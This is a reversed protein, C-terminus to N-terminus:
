FDYCINEFSSTYPPIRLVREIEWAGIEKYLVNEDSAQCLCKIVEKIFTKKVVIM